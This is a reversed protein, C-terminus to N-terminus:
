IPPRLSLVGLFGKNVGSIQICKKKNFNTYYIICTEVRRLYKIFKFLLHRWSPFYNVIMAAVKKRLPPKVYDKNELCVVTVQIVSQDLPLSSLTVIEGRPLM